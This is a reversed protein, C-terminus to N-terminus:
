FCLSALISLTDKERGALVEIMIRHERKILFTVQWYTGPFSPKPDRENWEGIRRVGDIV